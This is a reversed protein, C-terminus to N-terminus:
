TDAETDTDRYREKDRQRKTERDIDTQRTLLDMCEGSPIHSQLDRKWYRAEGYYPNRQRFLRPLHGWLTQYVKGKLAKSRSNMRALTSYLLNYESKLM